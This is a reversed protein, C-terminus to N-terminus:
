EITADPQSLKRYFAIFDGHKGTFAGVTIPEDPQFDWQKVLAFPIKVYYSGGKKIVRDPFEVKYPQLEDTM